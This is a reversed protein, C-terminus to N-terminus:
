SQRLHVLVKDRRYLLQAVSDDQFADESNKVFEILEDFIGAADTLSVGLKEISYTDAVVEVSVSGLNDLLTHDNVHGEEHLVLFAQTLPSLKKMLNDFMITVMVGKRTLYFMAPTGIGGHGGMKLVKGLVAGLVPHYHLRTYKRGSASETKKVGKTFIAVFTAMISLLTTAIVVYINKM